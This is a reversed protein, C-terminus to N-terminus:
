STFILSPLLSTRSSYYRYRPTQLDSIKVFRKEQPLSFEGPSKPTSKPKGLVGEGCGLYFLYLLSVNWGLNLRRDPWKIYPIIQIVVTGADLLMSITGVATREEGHTM